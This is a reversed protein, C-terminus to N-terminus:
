NEVTINVPVKATYKNKGTKYHVTIEHHGSSLAPYIMSYPFTTDGAIRKGDIYFIAWRIGDPDTIDATVEFSKRALVRQGEVHSTIKLQRNDHSAKEQQSHPTKPTKEPSNSNVVDINVLVKPTYKNKRTKYHVSIEHRGPSLAPYIMSYPFTTDGAIRKGDIYFIAWRIGDPDTIDVKVEFGKRASVSQGETHSTVILSKNTTGTPVQPLPITKSPDSTIVTPVEPLSITKEPASATGTVVQPLTITKPHNTYNDTTFVLNSYGLNPKKSYVTDGAGSLRGPLAKYYKNNSRTAVHGTMHAAKNHADLITNNAFSINKLQKDFVVFKKFDKSIDKFLNGDFKIKNSYSIYFAQEKIKYFINNELVSNQMSYGSHPGSINIGVTSDFLVNDKIVTNNVNFHIVMVAGPDSLRSRTRDSKRYGWMKNNSIVVPKTSNESGTKLDIANEAYAFQGNANHHGKGDTYIKNDIYFHNNDVITGEFSQRSNGNRRAIQVGDVFNYVENSLIKNNVMRISRRGRASLGIAVRDHHISINNRQIRCNQIINNDSGDLISIGNGVNSMFYRNVINNDSNELAIPNLLGPSEWYAMRDIVWNNANKFILGVKALRNKSLKGPHTNNGNHLLIYRKQITTGSTKIVVRGASSGANSYDGPVVFFFRIRRDNIKKWDQNNKILYMEPNNSDYVPLVIKKEYASDSSTAFVEFDLIVFNLVLTTCVVKFLYKM